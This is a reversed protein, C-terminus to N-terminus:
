IIQNKCQKEDGKIIFRNEIKKFEKCKCGFILCPKKCVGCDCHESLEHLCKCDESLKTTM